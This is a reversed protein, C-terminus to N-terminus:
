FFAQDRGSWDNGFRARRTATFDHRDVGLMGGNVLAQAATARRLHSADDQRCAAAWEAATRAVLQLMDGDRVRECMRCPVHAGLDGNVTGRQHVLAQFYNLRVFEEIHSEVADIDHYM